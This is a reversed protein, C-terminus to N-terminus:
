RSDHHEAQGKGGRHHQRTLGLCEIDIGADGLFGTREIEEFEAEPGVLVSLLFLRDFGITIGGFFAM